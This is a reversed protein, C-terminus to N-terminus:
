VQLVAKRRAIRERLIRFFRSREKESVESIMTSRRMLNQMYQYFNESFTIDRTMIWNNTTHTLMTVKTNDLVALISNDFLLIENVYMQYNSLPKKAPDDIKFKRGFTAQAELHDITREVAEYIKLVDYDSKFMQGERYYEIQHITSNIAELNWLEFSDVQNYLNLIKQGLDWLEDPYGNIDVKIKKFEPFGFISAMWFHYKFAALEKIHWHHFLPIDKCLYYLEHQKFSVFYAMTHMIATLYADFRFNKHNLLNGQFVFGGTPINMLQDLSIRFNTALMYLEEFTIQKEGRMRRYASDSSINLFKAIEDAVSAEAPIRTKIIQFLQQQIENINMM